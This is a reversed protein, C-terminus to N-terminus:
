LMKAAAHSAAQPLFHPLGCIVFLAYPNLKAFGM